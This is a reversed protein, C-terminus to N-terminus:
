RGWQRKCKGLTIVKPFDDESEGTRERQKESTRVKTFDKPDGTIEGDCDKTDRLENAGV